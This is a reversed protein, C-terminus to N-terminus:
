LECYEGDNSLNKCPYRWDQGAGGFLKIAEMPGWTGSPYGYLKLDPNNEWADLIPTLFAWCAEVADARAYLTSDGLMCDLLLREYADPLNFEGLDSYHFDMNVTKIDYGVGPLKMGFKLLVGEDPQIRIVLQNEVGESSGHQTFMYHPTRKFHIVAETVRTPLRKGTRIYFPVGGWRWNDVFLKIAIFTETKSDPAVNSENRYGVVNEGKITSALYQGRVVQKDINELRIPKISHFIKAKENRIENSEFRSPPEM